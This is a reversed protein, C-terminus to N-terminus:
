KTQRKQRRYEWPPIPDQRSWLNKRAKRASREAVKFDTANPAFREFWWCHGERVMYLNLDKGSNSEISAVYRRYKDQGHITVKADKGLLLSRLVAGAEKGYEQTYEPCDIGFLRIRLVKEDMVIPFVKQFYRVIPNDNLLTKHIEITVTDGDSVTKVNAIFERSPVHDLVLYGTFGIWM